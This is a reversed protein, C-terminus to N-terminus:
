RGDSTFKISGSGTRLSANGEGTGITAEVRNRKVTVSTMGPVDVDVGGSGTRAVLKVNPVGSARITISGSGTRMVLDRVKSLDGAVQISGSGTTAEFDGGGTLDSVRISGSGTGMEIEGGVVTADIGGSGTNAEIEGSVNALEIGGSGTRADLDGEFNSIDLRGSGSRVTWEGRGNAATVRGSSTRLSIEGRLGDADLPGVVNHAEFEVGHPLTVRVDAHVEDGRGRSEVRIRKGRYTATTNHSGREPKYVYRNNPYEVWVEINDGHVRHQLTISQALEDTAGIRDVEIVVEDGDGAVITMSGVLNEVSIDSDTTVPLAIRAPQTAAPASVPVIALLFVLTKANM